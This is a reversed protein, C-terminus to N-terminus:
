QASGVYGAMQYVGRKAKELIGIDVLNTLLQWTDKYSQWGSIEFFEVLSLPGHQLLMVASNQRQMAREGSSQAPRALENM